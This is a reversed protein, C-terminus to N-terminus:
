WTSIPRKKNRRVAVDKWVRDNEFLKEDFTGLVALLKRNREEPTLKIEAYPRGERMLVIKSVSPLLDLNQGLNRVFDTVTLTKTM